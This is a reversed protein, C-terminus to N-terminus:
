KTLGNQNLVNKKQPLEFKKSQSLIDEIKKVTRSVASESISYDTAIHFMTRYERWYMLTILLQDEIGYKCPRSRDPIKRRKEIHKKVERVMTRFTHPRVGVRRRFDSSKLTQINHWLM